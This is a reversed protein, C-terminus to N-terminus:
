SLSFINPPKTTEDKVGYLCQVLSKRFESIEKLENPTMSGAHDPGHMTKDLTFHKEIIKAGRSMAVISATVGISHDSFGSYKTFDVKDFYFDSLPTPYKCICYLYSVQGFSGITPFVSKTWLGLSAIVPLNTAVIAEILKTDCISRSALKIQSVHLRELWRVRECDFPSAMFEIGQRRCENALELAQDFNIETKCNYEYWENREKPFLAAADYLQFKAVDAGSGKAAAILERALSMDGNHNQGIEAIIKIM